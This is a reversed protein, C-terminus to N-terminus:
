NSFGKFEFHSLTCAAGVMSIFWFNDNFHLSTHSGDISVNRRANLLNHLQSFEGEKVEASHIVEM